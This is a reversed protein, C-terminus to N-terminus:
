GAASVAASAAAVQEHSVGDSAYLCFQARGGRKAAYMAADAHRSLEEFNQGHQPFLAVGGSVGVHVTHAQLVFAPACTALIKQAVAAVQIVNLLGPLLVVFEDGGQRCVTDSQRVAASLRQAFEVLLQDGVAHGLADNVQKFGDLDLYLVALVKGDRRAQALAHRARDQLLVRNPLDTLADYQALHAMREAMAMTETVDHLVMVAGTLQGHRDIIPSATAEVEFRRGDQRHPVVGRTPGCSQQQQLAHRMPSPQALIGKDLYLPVVIDIDCGAADFAQWGSMREAVPNIYNIHGEADTCVVADGISQLTLRMREKEGFLEDEIRKRETIDTIQAFIGRVKGDKCYDPTYSVYTHRVKGDPGTLTREFLQQQGQLAKELYPLVLDYDDPTLVQNAPMGHMQQPSVNFWTNSIRNAFRNRLERDWYSVMSPLNDLITQLDHQTQQLETSIKQSRELARAFLVALAVCALMLALAFSGLLTASHRWNALVTDVSRAVNVVLPYQGLREFAYMREVGDIVAYNSFTGSHASQLNAMNATGALSKGVDQQGYPFRAVVTGDLNFLSIASQPGLQSSALLTNFYSLQIAGVVVGGMSGDPQQYARALPLIFQGSAPSRVPRGVHLGTISGSQFAQLCEQYPWQRQQVPAGASELLVQGQMDLVWVGEIGPVDLSNDFLVRHRMAPALAAVQADGMGQVVGRLSHDFTDLTSVMAQSLTNALNISTRNAFQWQNNRMTHIAHAFLGGIGLSLLVALLLLQYTIPLRM